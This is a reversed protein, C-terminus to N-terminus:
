RFSPKKQKKKTIKTEYMAYDSEKMFEDVDNGKQYMAYGMSSEIEFGEEFKELSNEIQKLLKEQFVKPFDQDYGDAFVFFEDGHLRYSYVNSFSMATKKLSNAFECLVKDGVAHGYNDNFKKFDDIDFFMGVGNGRLLMDKDLKHNNSLKTLPDISAFEIQHKERNIRETVDIIVGGIKRPDGNDYREEIRSSSIAYIIKKTKLNEFKLVQNDTGEIDGSLLKEFSEKVDSDDQIETEIGMLAKHFDESDYLGNECPDLGLLDAYIENAEFYRIGNKDVDYFFIGVGGINIALEYVITRQAKENQIRTSTIDYIVGGIFEAEGNKNRKIVEIDVNIWKENHYWEEKLTDLEGSLLLDTRKFFDLDRVIVNDGKFQNKDRSIYYTNDINVPIDLLKAFREDAYIKNIDVSLDIMFRGVNNLEKFISFHKTYAKLSDSYLLDLKDNKDFKNFTVLAYDKERHILNVSLSITYYLNHNLDNIVIAKDSFGQKTIFINSVQTLLNAYYNANSFIDTLFLEELVSKFSMGIKYDGEFLPAINSSYSDVTLNEDIQFVITKQEVLADIIKM